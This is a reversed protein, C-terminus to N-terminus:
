DVIEDYKIVRSHALTIQKDRTAGAALTERALSESELSEVKLIFDESGVM